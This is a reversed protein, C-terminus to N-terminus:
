KFNMQILSQLEEKNIPKTIYDNCGADISKERGVSFGFATQAIIVVDRNFQRIQRTADDGSLDPMRIDMLILDINPNSRCIEVAEKGTRAYLLEKSFEKMYFSLLMVSTEDDDAILVILKRFQKQIGSNKLQVNLNSKSQLKHTYPLTFYFTSGVGMESEVWIKGGLMKVFSKTIALGLGAGQRAMKDYIDAQVFREFIAKQRDKPIGIGTDKIYFKLFARDHTLMYGFEISGENSYKVANKVLNTLIAYLKERDTKLIAEISPLGNKFSLTMGKAEVEPRFFTYIFEIQENVNSEKIDVKMLGSEIRSIDIIDNIINLMRNGSTQIIKIYEQQQEGTLDPDKLIESFGLIGNMPTRIEHSMNALFASKLRDSEEAKDKSVILDLNLLKLKENQDILQDQLVKNETIDRSIVIIRHIRGDGNKLPILQTFFTKHIDQFVITEEYTIRNEETLCRDYHQKFEAYLEPPICEDIYRNQYYEVPGLLSAEAANYTLVKYRYDETVEYIAMIDFTNDFIQRYKIESEKLELEVQNRELEGAARIAVMKLVNEAFATNEMPKQSIIAILGIPKGDFSWLTTGIYSQAKLEQLAADNPFLQCVNAPFCCIHKGVVDGCPTQ